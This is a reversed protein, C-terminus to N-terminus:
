LLEGGDIRIISGTMYRSEDSALFRVLRAIDEPQGYMNMPNPKINRTKLYDIISGALQTNIIGPASGNVRIGGLEAVVKGVLRDLDSTDAMDAKVVLAHNGRLMSRATEQLTSEDRGALALHAGAEALEKAIAAGIGRSAGTVLAVKGQLGEEMSSLRDTAVIGTMAVVTLVPRVTPWVM